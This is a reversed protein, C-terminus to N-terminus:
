WTKYDSKVINEGLIIKCDITEGVEFGMIFYSDRRTADDREQPIAVSLLVRCVIVVIIIVM